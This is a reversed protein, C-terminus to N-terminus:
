VTNGRVTAVPVQRKFTVFLLGVWLVVSVLTIAGGVRLAQWGFPEFVPLEEEAIVVVQEANEFRDELATVAELHERTDIPDFNNFMPYGDILNMNPLMSARIEERRDVAVRYDKFTFFEEFVLRDEVAQPMYAVSGAPMAVERPAYFDAPVTPNLGSFAWLLDVAVVVIVALQWIWQQRENQLRARLLTLTACVSLLVGFILLARRMVDVVPSGGIVRPVVVGVLLLLGAGAALMLRSWFLAWYGTHWGYSVGSGALVSLAFVTVILWRVPGQFFTFTPIYHYLLPFLFGNRGLALLIGLGALGAWFPVDQVPLITEDPSRRKSLWTLSAFLAAILPLVGIYAADEFYAGETLFTGDAPTGYLNPMLLTLSRALSYSFNTAWEYNLGNARGSRLLLEATPLLQVAALGVGLVGALGVFAVWRGRRSQGRRGWLLWLLYLGGAVLAYWATQAHGALLLLAVVIALWLSARLSQQRAVREISLILWPLWSAAAVTPFSGLRAVLYGSLAFSLTSVSRGLPPLNWTGTLKWMGAGALVLHGVALLNMATVHPLILHLWNPPYFVAVQYNALLPVGGGNLTNWLPIRGAKLQDFAFSRWPYFQLAPLGWFLTEGRVLPWLWALLVAILLGFTFVAFWRQSNM